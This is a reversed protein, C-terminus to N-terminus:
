NGKKDFKQIGRKLGIGVRANANTTGYVTNTAGYVPFAMLKACQFTKMKKIELTPPFIMRVHGVGRKKAQDKPARKEQKPAPIEWIM